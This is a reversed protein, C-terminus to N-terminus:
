KRKVQSSGKSARIVRQNYAKIGRTFFFILAVLAVAAIIVQTWPVVWFTTSTAIINSGNGYSINATVTYRGFSGINELDREFRRISDPLVNGRPTSDNLEYQFVENGSWDEVAVRGFPAQFTNGKNAIRFMFTDPASSFFSGASGDNLAAAETLELLDVTEGPVDLLVVMGVSANLTVAADGDVGQTDSDSVYRIVGFYSGPSADVPISYTIDIEREEGAELEIEDLTLVFPKISFPYNDVATEGILLNPSGTEDDSPGFDDVIPRATQQTNTVNRINITRTESTGQEVVLDDRTPSIRFGAAGRNEQVEQQEQAFSTNAYTAVIMLGIVAVSYLLKKAM